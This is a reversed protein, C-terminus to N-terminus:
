MRNLPSRLPGTGGERHHDARPPGQAARDGAAAVSYDGSVAERGHAFSIVGARDGVLFLAGGATKPSGPEALFSVLGAAFAAESRSLLAVIAWM